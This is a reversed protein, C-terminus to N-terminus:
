IYRNKDLLWSSTLSILERTFYEHSLCSVRLESAPSGLGTLHDCSQFENILKQNLSIRDWSALALSISSETSLPAQQWPQHGVRSGMCYFLFVSVCQRRVEIQAGHCVCSHVCVCLHLFLLIPLLWPLCGVESRPVFACVWIIYGVCLLGGFSSMFVYRHDWWYPPLSPPNSCTWPWSPGKSSNWALTPM